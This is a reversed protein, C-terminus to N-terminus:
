DRPPVLTTGQVVSAVQIGPFTSSETSQGLTGARDDNGADPEVDQYLMSEPLYFRFTTGREAETEIEIRGGLHRIVDRVAGLGVGRGSTLSVGDQRSSIADAFLAQELDARGAAPLGRQRALGAIRDWDIGRGDDSISVVVQRDQHVASITVTAVQPKGSRIREEPSAIGHDVANRVVHTFVSWFAGWKRPPLRLSTPQQIVTVESRGLRKALTQIQEAILMLRQSAPENQWSLVTGLLREGETRNKLDAIFAAYEDWDIEIRRGAPAGDMLQDRTEMVKAWLTRLREREDSSIEKNSENMSQELAHCYIAVSEIGFLACNGKITHIQRRLLSLAAVTPTGGSRAGAVVADVLETAEVFFGDVAIRDSRMRRFISMMERQGQEAREREISMTVDTIVVITKVLREGELIPRYVLDYTRDHTVIRGPLQDLCMELPLIDESLAMWGVEFWEATPVSTRRLYEWFVPTGEVPGFWEQIVRSRELSMTGAIDLTLFGQGVNDLVLRMDHNRTNIQAERAKIAAAMSRFARALEGVEDSTRIQIEGTGGKELEKAAGVLKRLPGVIIFRAMVMILVTVSLGVLSSVLLTTKQAAAITRLERKLSFSTVAMAVTKGNEDRVAAVLDVRDSERRIPTALSVDKIPVARGRSLEGLKRGPHGDNDVSWVAAYEVDENRGLTAIATKIAVDDEFVVAAACSDAFLRNVAAAGVEKATLLSERQYTSVELFSGAAGLLILM